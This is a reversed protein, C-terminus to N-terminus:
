YYYWGRSTLIYRTYLGYMSGNPHNHVLYWRYLFRFSINIVGVGGRSDSVVKLSKQMAPGGILSTRRMRMLWRVWPMSAEEHFRSGGSCGGWIRYSPGKRTVVLHAKSAPTLCIQQKAIRSAFSAFCAFFCLYLCLVVSLPHFSVISTIKLIGWCSWSGKCSWFALHNKQQMSGIQM